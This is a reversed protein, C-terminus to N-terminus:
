LDQGMLLITFSRSPNLTHSELERCLPPDWVGVVDQTSVVSGPYGTCGREGVGKWRGLRQAIGYVRGRADRSGIEEAPLRGQVEEAQRLEIGDHEAARQPAEEGETPHAGQGAWVSYSVPHPLPSIQLWLVWTHTGAGAGSGESGLNGHTFHPHHHYGSAPKTHLNLPIIINFYGVPQLPSYPHRSNTDNNGGGVGRTVRHSGWQVLELGAVQLAESNVQTRM